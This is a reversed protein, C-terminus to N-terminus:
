KSGKASDEADNDRSSTSSLPGLKDDEEASSLRTYAQKEFSSFVINSLNHASIKSRLNKLNICLTMVTM